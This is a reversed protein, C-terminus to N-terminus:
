ELQTEVEVQLGISTGDYEFCAGTVTGTPQQYGMISLGATQTGFSRYISRRFPTPNTNVEKQGHLEM